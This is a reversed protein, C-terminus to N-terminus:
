PIIKQFDAKEKLDLAQMNAFDEQMAAKNGEKKAISYLGAYCFRRINDPQKEALAQHLMSKAQEYQDSMMYAQALKVKVLSLLATLNPDDMRCSDGHKLTRQYYDVAMRYRGQNLCLNGYRVEVGVIGKGTASPSKEAIPLIDSLVQEQKAQDGLMAYDDSLMATNDLLAVPNEAFEKAASLRIQIAKLLARKNHTQMYQQERTSAVCATGAMEEITQGFQHANAASQRYFDEAQDYHKMALQCNGRLQLMYTKAHPKIDKTSAFAMRLTSDAQAFNGAKILANVNELMRRMDYVINVRNGLKDRLTQMGAETLNPCDSINLQQLSRCKTLVLLDADEANTQSIDLKELQPLSSLVEIGRRTLTTKGLIVTKLTKVHQLADLNRVNSDSLNLLLLPADKIYTLGADTVDSNKIVLERLLKDGKLNRMDEDNINHTFVIGTFDMRVPDNRIMHAMADKMTGDSSEDRQPSALPFSTNTKDSTSLRASEPRSAQSDSQSPNTTNAPKPQQYVAYLAVSVIGLLLSLLLLQWRTKGVGTKSSTVPVPNNYPKGRELETKLGVLDDKLGRMSQYRDEPKKNLLRSVIQQATPNIEVGLSAQSMPVPEENLHMILTDFATQGIFPPTGSLAEYMVCGLSYLDSRQDVAASRCQEPSMYLPSGIAEGTRTLHQDGSETDHMFKAIGFDMIRVEEQGDQNRVLMINSPKVDRHLVSGKHAHELADCVQIFIRLFRVLPLRVSKKLVEALTSGEVYDMVMYPQGSETVGFDLVGVIGPHKLLSCAQGELQFRRLAESSILHSHLMKIAVFKNLIKQRAKYIVGMGGSGIIGLFEYKSKLTRDDCSKGLVRTGDQPCIDVSPPLELGCTTCPQMTPPPSQSLSQKDSVEVPTDDKKAWEQMPQRELQRL